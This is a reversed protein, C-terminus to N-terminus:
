SPFRWFEAVINEDGLNDLLILLGLLFYIISIVLHTKEKKSNIAVVIVAIWCFIVVLNETNEFHTTYIFSQILAFTAIVIQTM